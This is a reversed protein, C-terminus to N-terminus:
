GARERIFDGWTPIVHVSSCGARRHRVDLVSLRMSRGEIPHFRGERGGGRLKVVSCGEVLLRKFTM